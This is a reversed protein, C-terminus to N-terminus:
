PTATKISRSLFPVNSGPSFTKAVGPASDLGTFTDPVIVIGADAVVPIVPILTTSADPVGPVDM